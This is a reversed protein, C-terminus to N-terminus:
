PRGCSSAASAMSRATRAPSAMLAMRKSDFPAGWALAKVRLAAARPKARLPAPRRTGPSGSLRSSALKSARRSPRRMASALGALKRKGAPPTSIAPKASAISFPRRVSAPRAPSVSSRSMAARLTGSEAARMMAGPRSRAPVSSAWAFIPPVAAAGVPGHLTLIERRTVGSVRRAPRGGTSIAADPASFPSTALTSAVTLAPRPAVRVSRPVAGSFAAPTSSRTACPRTSAASALGSIPACPCRTVPLTASSRRAAPESAAGRSPPDAVSLPPLKVSTSCPTRNVAISARTAALPSFRVISRALALVGLPPVSEAVPRTSSSGAAPKGPEMRIWPLRAWSTELSITVATALRPRSMAPGSAWRGRIPPRTSTSESSTLTGSRSGAVRRGTSPMLCIRGVPVAAARRAASFRLARGALRPARGAGAKSAASASVTEAGLRTKTRPRPMSASSPPCSLTPPLRAAGCSSPPKSSRRPRRVTSLWRRSKLRPRSAKAPPVSGSSSKTASVRAPSTVARTMTVPGASAGDKAKVELGSRGCSSTSDRRSKARADPESEGKWASCSACVAACNAPPPPSSEKSRSRLDRPTSLRSM